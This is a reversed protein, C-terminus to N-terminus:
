IEATCIGTSPRRCLDDKDMDSPWIYTFHYITHYWYGGSLKMRGLWLTLVRETTLDGSVWENLNTNIDQLNHLNQVGTTHFTHYKMTGWNIYTVIDTHNTNTGGHGEIMTDDRQWCSCNMMSFQTHTGLPCLHLNSINCCGLIRM